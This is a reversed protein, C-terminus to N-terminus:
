RRISRMKGVLDVGGVDVDPADFLRDLRGEILNALRDLQDAGDWADPAIAAQMTASIPVSM